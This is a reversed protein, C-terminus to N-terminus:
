FLSEELFQVAGEPIIIGPPKRSVWVHIANSIDIFQDLSGGKISLANSEDNSEHWPRTGCNSCFACKIVKGNNSKREWYKPLGHIIKFNDRTVEVSIGFASGSQKQCEKCHCIYIEISQAEHEYKIEGCQCGGTLKKM